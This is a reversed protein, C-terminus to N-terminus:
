GAAPIGLVLGAVQWCLALLALLELAVLPLPASCKRELTWEAEVPSESRRLFALRSARELWWALQPVLPLPLAHVPPHM